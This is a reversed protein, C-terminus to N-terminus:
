ETGRATMEHLVNEIEELRYGFDRRTDDRYLDLQREVSGVLAIDESLLARKEEAAMIYARSVRDAVGLPTALKLQIRSAEDLTQLIFSELMEFRSAARLSTKRQPETEERAALALRASVPFIEPSFGVLREINQRVFALQDALEHENTLLDAKNLVVVIKKGWARIQEMFSRETESLPRDASTVFIVLDARPVFHSTIEEHERLVANTGPTDVIAVDRLLELPYRVEILAGERQELRGPGYRLRTIAATTPTVGESLVREGLLANIVASKGANFEGVIVLLFLEDLDLEAQRLLRLDDESARQAVLLERLRGLTSREESLIARAEDTLLPGATATPM